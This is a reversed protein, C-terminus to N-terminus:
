RAPEVVRWMVVHPGTDPDEWEDGFRRFGAREYFSLAPVRANCWLVGGGRGAVYDVLAELVAAGIGGGRLDPRSSMGRLRWARLGALTGGPAGGSATARLLSGLGDPAAEPAVTGTAVVEAADTVAGIALADPDSSNRAAGDELREHPYLVAHRLSLTRDAAVPGVTVRGATPHHLVTM